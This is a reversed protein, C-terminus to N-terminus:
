FEKLIIRYKEGFPNWSMIAHGDKVELYVFGAVHKCTDDTHCLYAYDGDEMPFTPVPVEVPEAPKDPLLAKKVGDLQKQLRDREECVASYNRLAEDQRFFLMDSGM